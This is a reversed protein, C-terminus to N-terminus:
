SIKMYKRVTKDIWSIIILDIGQTNRDQAASVRPLMKLLEAAGHPM